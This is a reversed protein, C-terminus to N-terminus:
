KSGRVRMLYALIPEVNEPPIPASYVKQMKTVEATWTERSLPPQNLIYRPTHCASCNVKVMDVDPGAPLAPDLEPVTLTKIEVADTGGACTMQVLLILAGWLATLAITAPKKM